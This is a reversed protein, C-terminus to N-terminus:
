KEVKFMSVTASTWSNGSMLKSDSIPPSKDSYMPIVASVKQSNPSNIMLLIKATIDFL